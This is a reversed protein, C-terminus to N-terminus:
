VAVCVPPPWVNERGPLLFTLQELAVKEPATDSPAVETSAVGTYV